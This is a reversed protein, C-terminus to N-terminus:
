DDIGDPIPCFTDEMDTLRVHLGKFRDILASQQQFLESALKILCQTQVLLSHQFERIIALRRAHERMM